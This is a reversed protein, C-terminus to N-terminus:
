RWLGLPRQAAAAEIVGCCHEIAGSLGAYEVVAIGMDSNQSATATITNGPTVGCPVLLTWITTETNDPSPAIVTKQLTFSLNGDTVSTTTAGGEAVQVDAILLDGGAPTSALTTSISPVSHGTNSSAQRFGSGSPFTPPKEVYFIGVGAGGSPVAVTQTNSTTGCDAALQYGPPNTETMTYTGAAVSVPGLPNPQTPATQPGTAGLTGGSVETTTM